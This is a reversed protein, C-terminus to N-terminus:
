NKVQTERQFRDLLFSTWGQVDVLGDDNKNMDSMLRDAEEEVNEVGWNGLMTIFGERNMGSGNGYINVVNEAMNQALEQTMNGNFAGDAQLFETFSLSNDSNNDFFDL